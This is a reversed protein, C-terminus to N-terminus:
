KLMYKILKLERQTGKGDGLDIGVDLYGDFNTGTGTVVRVRTNTSVAAAASAAAYGGNDLLATVGRHKNAETFTRAFSFNYEKQM